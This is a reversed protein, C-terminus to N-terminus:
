ARQRNDYCDGYMERSLERIFKTIIYNVKNHDLGYIEGISELTKGDQWLEIIKLDKKPTRSKTKELAPEILNRLNYWFEWIESNIPSSLEDLAETDYLIARLSKESIRETDM